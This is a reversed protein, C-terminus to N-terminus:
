GGHEGEFAGGFAERLLAAPLAEIAALEERIKTTLRDAAALRSCSAEVIRIQEQVPPLPVHLNRLLVGNLNPQNGGRNETLARLRDYNARFWLQLFQTDFLDPSPHIAFCAQNTTAARTLIGTRGRTKGQGYMAILLTGPPLLPLSCEQMAEESVTELKIGEEAILSDHLEGTKIWPIGGGFYNKNGRAPTAGSSTKAIEGIPLNRWDRSQLGDFVGSLYAAPLAEAAALRSQAAVRAREVAALQETLRAAIRKQDAVPPIPVELRLLSDMDARPMRGGTKERMAWEVTEGRRLLWALFRRDVSQMPLLPIMETTCRGEFEPLAVKNLYPRLKGYLVHRNDFRFTTSKGEDEPAVETKKLIAGSNPEVHELSLYPLAAAATSAPDIIARDQRCVQGLPLYQWRRFDADSQERVPFDLKKLAFQDESM